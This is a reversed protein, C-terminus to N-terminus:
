KSLSTHKPERSKGSVDENEKKSKLISKKKKMSMPLASKNSVEPQNMCKRTTCCVVLDCVVGAWIERGSSSWVAFLTVNQGDPFSNAHVFNVFWTVTAYSNLSFLSSTRVRLPHSTIPSSHPSRSCIIVPDSYVYAMNQCYIINAVTKARTILNRSLRFVLGPEYVAAKARGSPSSIFKDDLIVHSTQFLFSQFPSEHSLHSTPNQM